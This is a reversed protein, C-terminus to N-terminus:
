MLSCHCIGIKLMSKRMNEVVFDYENAISVYKKPAYFLINKRYFLECNLSYKIQSFISILPRDQLTEFGHTTSHIKVSQLSCNKRLSFLLHFFIGILRFLPKWMLWMFSIMIMVLIANERNMASKFVYGYFFSILHLM